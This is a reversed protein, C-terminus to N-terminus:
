VCWAPTLESRHLVRSVATDVDAAPPQLRCSVPLPAGAALELELCALGDERPHEFAVALRRVSLATVELCVGAETGAPCM